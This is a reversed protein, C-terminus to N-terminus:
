YVWNQSTPHQQSCEDVVRSNYKTHSLTSDHSSQRSVANLETEIAHSGGLFCMHCSVCALTIDIHTLKLAILLNAISIFLFPILMTLAIDAITMIKVFGIWDNYPSCRRPLLSSSTHSSEDGDMSKLGTTIFNYSYGIIAVGMITALSTRKASVTCIDRCKMPFYVAIIREISFAVTFRACTINWYM